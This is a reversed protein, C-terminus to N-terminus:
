KGAERDTLKKVARAPVRFVTGNREGLVLKWPSLYGRVVLRQGVPLLAEADCYQGYDILGDVYQDFAENVPCTVAEIVVIEEGKAFPPLAAAETDM